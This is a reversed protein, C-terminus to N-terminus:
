YYMYSYPDSMAAEMIGGMAVIMVVSLIISLILSILWFILQGRSFNRLNANKSGGFAFILACILNVCPISFLIMYGVYGWTSIPTTDEQPIPQGYVVPAPNPAQAPEQYNNNEFESM